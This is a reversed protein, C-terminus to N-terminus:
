RIQWEDIHLVPGTPAVLIFAADGPRLEHWTITRQDSSKLFVHAKNTGMVRLRNQQLVLAAEEEIAFGLMEEPKGGEKGFYRFLRENDLLLGTFREIRGGRGSGGFHQEIIVNDLISLGRAVSAYAPRGNQPSGAVTMIRAMIATGASTGGVVGGRAVVSHLEREFRTPNKANVFLRALESQDGGGFWVAHATQLPLVFKENLADNPNNSTLFQLSSGKGLSPMRAWLDFYDSLRARLQEPPERFHPQFGAYAAPCLVINPKPVGALEPFEEAVDENEGGGHLVVTGPKRPDLPLPMGFPNNPQSTPTKEIIASTALPNSGAVVQAVGDRASIMRWTITRDGNGKLFIHARRTGLVRLHRGTILLATDQDVGIGIMNRGSAPLRVRRNLQRTDKLLDTLRELRGGIANFNQDVIAGRILGLGPQIVAKVPDYGDSEDRLIMVEPLASMGGGIGCVVGGRAVVEGLQEQFLTESDEDWRDPYRRTFRWALRGQFAAPIWVGTAQKLASVFSENECDSQNDTHLITLKAIAGSRERDVWTRWVKRIRKEFEPYTEEFEDGETDEGQSYSGSPILVIRANRGGALEVFANIISEDIEGGGHLMVTGPRKPDRPTPLLFPNEDAAECCPAMSSGVIIFSLVVWAIQGFRMAIGTEKPIASVSPAM